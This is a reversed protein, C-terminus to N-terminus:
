SDARRQRRHVSPPSEQGSLFIVNWLANAIMMAAVLALTARTLRDGGAVGLLRYVVFGFTVYYVVGIAYWAPLPASSRPTRLTAFFAKVGTGACLGELAAAIVCIAVSRALNGATVERAKWVRRGSQRAM